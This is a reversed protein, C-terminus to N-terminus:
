VENRKKAMEFEIIIKIADCTSVFGLEVLDNLAVPRLFQM